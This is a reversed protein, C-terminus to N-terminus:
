GNAEETASVAELALVDRLDSTLLELEARRRRVRLKVEAPPVTWHTGNGTGFALGSGDDLVLVVVVGAFEAQETYLGVIRRGIAERFVEKTNSTAM